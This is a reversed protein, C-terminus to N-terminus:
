FERKKMESFFRKREDDEDANAPLTEDFRRRVEKKAKAAKEANKRVLAALKKADSKSMDAM